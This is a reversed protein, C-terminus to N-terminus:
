KKKGVAKKTGGTAKKATPPAAVPWGTLQEKEVEVTLMFPAQTFAKATGEFEIETGPDAKGPLFGGEAIKITVEPTTADSVAVVIEKPKLAPTHSLVKGKMKPVGTDLVSDKFYQDGNVDVLATKVRIWIALQPNDKELQAQAAAMKQSETVISFGAPPFPAAAADAMLKDLGNMSGQYQPYTKRIYADIQTKDKPQFSGPGTLAASRAWHWLSEPQRAPDKQQLIATGIDYSAQANNPNYALWSKLFAETAVPNKRGKVAIYRTAWVHDQTAAKQKAWDADTVAAPKKATSKKVTAKKAAKKAAM